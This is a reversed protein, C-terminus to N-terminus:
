RLDNQIPTVAERPTRVRQAAPLGALAAITPDTHLVTGPRVNASWSELEGACARLHEASFVGAREHLERASQLFNARRIDHGGLVFAAPADLDLGAFRPLATVMGTPAALGRAAAALGLAATSGVGGFAGIMWLGVRRTAM